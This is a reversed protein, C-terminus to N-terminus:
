KSKRSSLNWTKLMWSLSLIEAMCFMKWFVLVMPLSFLQASSPQSVWDRGVQLAGQFTQFKQPILSTEKLSQYLSKTGLSEQELSRHSDLHGASSVQPLQWAGSQAQRPQTCAEWFGESGDMQRRFLYLCLVVCTNARGISLVMGGPQFEIHETNFVNM